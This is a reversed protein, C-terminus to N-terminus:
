AVAAQMDSLYPLPKEIGYGQAFDVGMSRLQNLIAQNEVFEAITAIGMVHGIQNIAEVMARDIPDDLMDKVFGGDIKLYDVPLHKLYAFSSMGSGFDDLAFSCGLAKLERILAAAQSLNAIASTETVEFCIQQPAVKHLAFQAQVYQLFSEDGISMGSLNIACMSGAGGDPHRRHHNAFTTKIVWRDLQTMLGYREAAPIFAMPPVLTGDEDRMRLLMEYHEGHGAAPDLPLIQQAYLVFRNEELAKQIRGIWGMEGHRLALERDDAAYSHIRNRGKDKAVYCAADAKRMVDARSESDAGFVVLGISVGVSFVKDQWVFHFESVTSRLQEALRLAPLTSCNELLVGFEDGGLRALTDSLRLHESLINGLQRLLEDGAIHGCTDNVIKFQDLDLYLLTHQQLDVRATQLMLELRREFERRNILGTLADHTAQHSLEAAMKQAVTVDHFVLVAGIMAGSSDRIPAASDEIPVIEGSRTTLLLSTKPPGPEVAIHSSNRLAEASRPVQVMTQADCVRYVQEIPEGVAQAASWGTMRAAVPNLYTVRGAIDTSIVADGIANLTVRLREKEDFLATETKKRQTVDEAFGLIYEVDGNEDFLPVTTASLYRRSGDQRRFVMESAVVPMPDALMRQDHEEYIAALAPPFIEHNTHGIVRQASLGTIVEAAANWVTFKGASGAKTTKGYLAVPLNDILSQLFIQSSRLALDARKRATIVRSTIAVGDGLPVIQHYLWEIEVHPLNVQFEEQLPTGSEIVQTYKRFLPGSRIVPSVECLLQGILPLDRRRFIREANANLYRIRFDVIQGDADREAQFIFFSDLSSETAAHLEEASAQYRSEAQERARMLTDFARALAGIEDNAYTAPLAPTQGAEAARMRERLRALPAIQLRAFWWALPGFLLTLLVATWTANRVVQRIPAFAEAEPYMSAVIWNTSQVRRFSFLGPVNDRNRARIIGEFGQLSRDVATNHGPLDRINKLIRVPNPHLVYDGAATYIFFHGRPGVQARHQPSMLASAELPVAAVLVLQLTGAADRVPATMVVLPKGTLASRFPASVVGHQLRVTDNFYARDTGVLTRQGVPGLDLTTLLTGRVDFVLMNDFLGEQTRHKQLFVNLAAGDAYVSEPIEAALHALGQERLRFAQDVDAAIRDTLAVQAD